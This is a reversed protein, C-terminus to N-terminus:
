ILKIVIIYIKRRIRIKLEISEAVTYLYFNSASLLKQKEPLVADDRIIKNRSLSVWMREDM